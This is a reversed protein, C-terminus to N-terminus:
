IWEKTIIIRHNSNWTQSETYNEVFAEAKYRSFTVPAISMMGVAALYGGLWFNEGNNAM